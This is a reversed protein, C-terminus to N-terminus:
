GEVAHVIRRHLIKSIWFDATELGLEIEISHDRLINACEGIKGESVVDARTEFTFRTGVLNSLLKFIARRADPPVEWDDFMSGFPNMMLFDPCCGLANLAKQVSMLMEETVIPKSIWYNCMTCGGALSHRCGRTRFWVEASTSEKYHYVHLIFDSNDSIRPRGKHLVRDVKDLFRNKNM